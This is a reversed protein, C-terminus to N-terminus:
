KIYVPRIMAGVFRTNGSYYPCNYDTSDFDLSFAGNDNGDLVNNSWYISTSEMRYSGSIFGGAPLFISNDQYGEVKSTIMWGQIDDIKTWVWQCNNILERYEDPTPMRWDKGLRIRAIDDCSDLVYKDYEGTISDQRYKTFAGISDSGHWFRYHKLDYNQKPVLEGWAYFSGYDTEKEAGINCTAWKVSLGLDVYEYRKMNNKYEFVFVVCLLIFLSITKLYKKKM